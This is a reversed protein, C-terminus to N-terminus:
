GDRRVRTQRAIKTIKLEFCPQQVISGDLQLAGYVVNYPLFYMANAEGVASTTTPLMDLFELRHILVTPM